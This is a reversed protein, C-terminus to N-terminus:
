ETRAYINALRFWHEADQPIRRALIEYHREAERWNKEAYAAEASRKAAHTDVPAQERAVAAQKREPASTCAALFVVLVTLGIAYTSNVKPLYRAVSLARM